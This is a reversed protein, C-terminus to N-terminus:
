ASSEPQAHLKYRNIYMPSRAILMNKEDFARISRFDHRVPDVQGQITCSDLGFQSLGSRRFQPVDVRLRRVKYAQPVV